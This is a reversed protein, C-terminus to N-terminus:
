GTSAPSTLPLYIRILTGPGRAREALEIRGQHLDVIRKALALGLGTGTPRTTFFPEFVRARVEAPIGPGTDEVEIRIESQGREGRLWVQGGEGAAQVANITVNLLAQRFRRLDVDTQLEGSLEVAVRGPACTARAVDHLLGSLDNPSPAVTLPRAFDLLDTVLEDIRDIEQEMANVVSPELREQARLLSVGNALVGLPNRIEHALVAAMGGLTALRERQYLQARMEALKGEAARLEEYLAAKEASIARERALLRQTEIGAAFHAGMMQLLNLEEASLRRERRFGINMSGLRRAGMNLPIAAACVFGTAIMRERVSEAYDSMRWTQPEGTRFVSFARTHEIPVDDFESAERASIGARYAPRLREAGPDVLYIGLGDAGFATLLEKSGREFLEDLTRSVSGIVAMRALASIGWTLQRETSGAEWRGASM